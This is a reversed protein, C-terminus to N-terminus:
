EAQGATMSSLLLPDVIWGELSVQERLCSVLFAPIGYSQTRPLGHQENNVALREQTHSWAAQVASFVSDILDGTQDETCAIRDQDNRFLVRFGYPNGEGALGTLINARVRVLEQGGDKYKRGPVIKDAVLRPYSEVVVRRSENCRVPPISVPAQRLINAGRFLMRGVPPNCQASVKMPSSPSSGAFGSITDTFRPLFVRKENAPDRGCKKWSEVLDRFFDITVHPQFITEIVAEWSQPAGPIFWQFYQVAAVPMGFPFDIGGVWEAGYETDDNLWQTFGTFDGELETSLPVLSEITLTDTHANSDLSCKALTIRKRPTPNSTFDLGYIRM